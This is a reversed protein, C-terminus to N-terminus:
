VVEPLIYPKRYEKRSLHSNAEDDNVFREADGNFTLKRGTRYATNGLHMMATSLHGESVDALLDERKRSRVCDLFNVFHYDIRAAEYEDRVTDIELDKATLNLGPEKKPGMFTQFSNGLVAFGQTGFFQLGEEEPTYLSRVELELIKGNAYEFTAV